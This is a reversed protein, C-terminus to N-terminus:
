PVVKIGGRMTTPHIQCRYLFIGTANFTFSFSNGPTLVGSNWVGGKAMTTHSVNGNNTWTVTDGVHVQLRNPTFMFETISIPFEARVRAPRDPTTVAQGSGALTGASLGLTLALVAVARLRM